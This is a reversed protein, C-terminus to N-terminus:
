VIDLVRLGLNPLRLGVGDALAEVLRNQLLELLTRETSFDIAADLFQLAVQVVPDGVAVIFPRM